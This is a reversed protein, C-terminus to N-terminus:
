QVTVERPVAVGSISAAQQPAGPAGARAQVASRSTAAAKAHMVALAEMVPSRQNDAHDYLYELMEHHVDPAVTRWFAEPVEDLATPPVRPAGYPADSM